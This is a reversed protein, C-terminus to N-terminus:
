WTACSAMWSASLRLESAACSAAHVAALARTRGHRHRRPTARHRPCQAGGAGPAIGQERLGAACAGERAALGALGATGLLALRELEAHMVTGSARRWRDSGASSWRIRMRVRQARTLSEIVPLPPAQPLRFGTPLRNWLMKLPAVQSVPNPTADQQLGRFEERVAPWLLALLSRSAPRPEGDKDPAAHGALYLRHRARTAAVYLLRLRENRLREAQLRTIYRALPDTADGEGLSRVALLLDTDGAPAPLELSRLLPPRDAAGTRGLGPVFVVDWELGKAHHITLVEVPNEGAVEDRGRLRAALEALRAPQLRGEREILRRLAASTNARPPCTGSFRPLRIRRGAAALM